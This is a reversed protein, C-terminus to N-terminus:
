PRSPEDLMAVQQLQMFDSMDIDNDRDLDYSSCADQYPRGPGQMCVDFKPSAAGATLPPVSPTQPQYLFVTAAVLVAACAAAPLGALRWTIMRRREVTEAEHLLDDASVVTRAFVGAQEAEHLALLQQELSTLNDDRHEHM